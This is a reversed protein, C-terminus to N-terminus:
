RFIPFIPLPYPFVYGLSSLNLSNFFNSTSPLSNYFLLIIFSGILLLLTTFFNLIGLDLSIFEINYSAWLLHLWQPIFKVLICILM